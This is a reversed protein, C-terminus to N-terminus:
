SLIYIYYFIQVMSYIKHFRFRQIFICIFSILVDLYFFICVRLILIYVVLTLFIYIIYYRISSVEKISTFFLYEVPACFM